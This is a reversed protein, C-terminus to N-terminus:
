KMTDSNNLVSTSYLFLVDANEFDVMTCVRDSYIYRIDVLTIKSYGQALLPALSSAFSDRFIVLEKGSTAAPNEITVLSLPGSLFIEYPDKGAAKKMDYVSIQTGNEHNTVKCSELVPNTLYALTEGKAPMAYQGYYVGYFPKELQKEEYQAKVDTGMQLALHEAVDVIKEQRWHTDTKYYDEIELLPIIDIYQMYDTESKLIELMEEYNLALQGGQDALFYNKDPIVSFYVNANKGVLYKDNIKRFLETARTLSDKNLPYESESIYGNYEYIGNNDSRNFLKLSVFAKISRFGDRFPFKDPTYDEFDKMFKGSIVDEASFEPFKKLKRRESDSYEDQPLFICLASFGFIILAFVAATIKTSIKM